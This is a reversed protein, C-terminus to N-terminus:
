RCRLLKATPRSRAPLGNSCGSASRPLNGRPRPPTERFVRASIERRRVAPFWVHGLRRRGMQGVGRRDGGQTAPEVIEGRVVPQRDHPRADIQAVLQGRNGLAEVALLRREKRSGATMGDRHHRAQEAIAGPDGVGHAHHGVGHQRAEGVGRRMRQRPPFDGSRRRLLHHMLADIEDRLQRDRGVVLEVAAGIDAGAQQDRSIRLGARLVDGDMAALDVRRVFEANQQQGAVREGEVAFRLACALRELDGDGDADVRQGREGGLRDRREIDVFERDGARQVALREVHDFAEGVVHAHRGLRFDHEFAADQRVAARGFAREALERLIVALAGFAMDGLDIADRVAAVRDKVGDDAAGVLMEQEAGNRALRRQETMQAAAKRVHAIDMQRHAADAAVHEVDLQALALFAFGLVDDHAGEGSM